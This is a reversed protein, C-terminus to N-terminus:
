GPETRRGSRAVSRVARVVRRAPATWRWSRSRVLRALTMDSAALERELRQYSLLAGLAAYARCVDTPADFLAGIATPLRNGVGVVGLGHGHSFEFVPFERRLAELVRWVGFGRERETTDHFLVIARDSLKPRWTDFDHRADEYFHRGDVHLLDISGDELTEVAADFSSKILRSFRAYRRNHASVEEYV